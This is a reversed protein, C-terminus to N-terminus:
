PRAFLRAAAAPCSGYYGHFFSATLSGAQYVAEPGGYRRPQTLAAPALGPQVELRGYHFVHGRLEGQGTRWSHLGIGALRTGMVATAPLLGAMRHERGSADRLTEACVMMGGCEAVIPRERRHHERLSALFRACGSLREAHLEPYGGPLYVASAGDPVPEDALPSFASVHAGLGQLLALNAEYCFSFAADRAVAIHSGELLPPPVVPSAASSAEFPRRWEPLANLLASDLHLAHDLSDWIAPLGAALEHAEVLGLHREPLPRECRLLHGAWGLQPPLSDRLMRAHNPGAVRNALVGAWSLTRGRGYDHLGLALAGFTEAMASADILALVPVAFAAALDAASPDGDYLGMAGEIILWDAERAAADLLRASEAPGVMWLDLNFVPAGTAAALYGPDIFDPGIKFGRVRQGGNALRRALACAFSTKGQGSAPGAILLARAM